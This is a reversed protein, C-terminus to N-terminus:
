QVACPVINLIWHYVINSFFIFFCVCVCIYSFWKATHWFSVCWQLDVMSWYNVYIIFFYNFYFLISNGRYYCIHSFFRFFFPSISVYIYIYICSFGKATCRFTICQLDVIGWYLIFVLNLYIFHAWIDSDSEGVEKDEWGFSRKLPELSLHKEREAKETLTQVCKDVRSNGPWSTQWKVKMGRSNEDQYTQILGCVSLHASSQRCLLATMLSVVRFTHMLALSRKPKKGRKNM